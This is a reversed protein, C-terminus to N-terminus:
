LHRSLGSVLADVHAETHDAFIGCRLAGASDIGKYQIHPLFIGEAMLAEQISRMTTESGARFTAVPAPTTGVELGLARLREKINQVNVRLRSLLDPHERAYRLSRACMAAAAALGSSAGRGVPTSRLAIVDDANAPIIGGSAGFAKSVSGGTTTIAPPIQHHECAGRGSVGLVGFSHSEDVLLHGEYPKIVSFFQDLPAIEGTGGYIGDTVILPREHARLHTKICLELDLPDLHKFPFSPMESAAIAERLSYHAMEDFFVSAFKSRLVSMAAFAFHYGGSLYVAGSTGFYKTAEQEAAQHARTAMSFFWPFQYGAGTEYLSKAGADLIESKGSLGLYSSGGFNIYRRGDIVIESGVPSEIRMLSPNGM